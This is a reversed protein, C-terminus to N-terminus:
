WQHPKRCACGCLGSGPSSCVKGTDLETARTYLELAKRTTPPSLQNWFYLAGSSLFRLSGSPVNPTARASGVREPPSTLRVEARTCDRHETSTPFALVSAPESDYSEGWIQVQERARILKSTIRLRADERRSVSSEVLSHPELNVDSIPFRNRDNAQLGDHHDARDRQHTQARDPRSSRDGGGTLGDALYELDSSAGFSEFPLVALIM